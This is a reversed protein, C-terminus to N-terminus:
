HCAPRWFGTCRRRTRRTRLSGWGMWKALRVAQARGCNVPDLQEGLTDVATEVELYISQQVALFRELQGNDRYLEPLYATFSERPFSLAFGSFVADGGGDGPYVELALRAYRGCGKKNGYLLMERYDSHYQACASLYEYQEKVSERADVREGAEREDFLWVHVQLVANRGVDLVLRNWRTGRGGSDYIRSVFYGAADHGKLRLEGGEGRLFGRCAGCQYLYKGSLCQGPM